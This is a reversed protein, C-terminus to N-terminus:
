GDWKVAQGCEQCYNERDEGDHLTHGCRSCNCGWYSYNYNPSRIPKRPEQAELLFVIEDILKEPFHFCRRPECNELPCQIGSNRVEEIGNLIIELQTM